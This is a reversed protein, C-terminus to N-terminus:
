GRDSVTACMGRGFEKWFILLSVVVNAVARRGTEPKLHDLLVQQRMTSKEMVAVGSYDKGM